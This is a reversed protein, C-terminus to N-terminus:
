LALTVAGRIILNNNDEVVYLYVGPQLVNGNEDTGDWELLSGGFDEGRLTRVLRGNFSFIQINPNTINALQTLNFQVSDNFGDNNPTFPNPSVTVEGETVTVNISIDNNTEDSEEIENDSDVIFRISNAGTQTFSHNFAYARSQGPQITENVRIVEEVVGNVLFTVNFPDEVTVDGDLRFVGEFGYSVGLLYETEFSISNIATAVLDPLPEGTEGILDITFTQVGCVSSARVIMEDTFVDFDSPTFSVSINRQGGIALTFESATELTFNNGLVIELTIDLSVESNNVMQFQQTSTQGIEVTGFDILDPFSLGTVIEECVGSDFLNFYIRIQNSTSSAVAIDMSGGLNLDASSVGLPGSINNDVIVDSGFLSTSTFESIRLDDSSFHTTILDLVGDSDLDAAAATLPRSSNGTTRSAIFSYSGGTNEYIYFIREDSSGLIIDPFDNNNERVFNGTVLFSPTFSLNDIIIDNSFNTNGQNILAEVRNEGSIAVLIDLLGNGNIDEASISIPALGVSYSQPSNFSGTGNNYHIFIRDSGLAAVALDLYGNGNFDGSIVEVPREGTDIFELDLNSPDGNTNRLIILQNSLTAAIIVDTNGNNNLDAATIGSNAPLSATSFAMEPEEISASQVDIGTEIESTIAFDGTTQTENELITVLTNNSNVVVLDPASNNSLDVSLIGSPESGDQLTYIQPQSFEFSGVFPQVHYSWFFPQNLQEGNDSRVEGTVSVMIKEGESFPNSPTFIATNSSELSFTGEISGSVTGYVFVGNELSSLNVNQSFSISVPDTSGAETTNPAPFQGSVVFQATVNQNLFLVAFALSCFTKIFTSTM